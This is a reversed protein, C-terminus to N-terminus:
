TRTSKLERELAELSRLASTPDQLNSGVYQRLQGLIRQVDHLSQVKNGFTSDTVDDGLAITASARAHVQSNSLPSSPSPSSSQRHCNNLTNPSPSASSVIPVSQSFEMSIAGSSCSSLPSSPLSPPTSHCPHRQHLQLAQKEHHLTHCLSEHQQGRPPNGTQKDAPPMLGQQQVAAERVNISALTDPPQPQEQLSSHSGDIGKPVAILPQIDGTSVGCKDRATMVSDESGSVPSGPDSASCLTSVNTITISGATTLGKVLSRSPKRNSKIGYRAKFRSLWGPCFVTDRIDMEQAIRKAQRVLAPGTIEEAVATSLGSASMHDSDIDSESLQHPGRQQPQQQPQQQAKVWRYIALELEPHRVPRKRVRSSEIGPTSLGRALIEASRKLSHSIAPQSIPFSYKDKFWAALEAQKMGPCEEKKLCLYYRQEHTIGKTMRTDSTSM